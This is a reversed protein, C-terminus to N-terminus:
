RDGGPSTTLYMEFDSAPATRCSEYRDLTIRAADVENFDSLVLDRAAAALRQRLVANQKLEAIAVSLTVADGAPVLLGTARHRIAEPVANVRSAICAKGLAMAELLAGPLGESFSPHVFLDALRLLALLDLRSPGIESPRVIRVTQELGKERIIREVEPRQNGDGIWVFFLERHSSHLIRAAELLTACGKRPVLQGLSFVLFGGQPLGFRRCMGQRDVDLALAEAIEAGDVGTRAVAIRSLLRAPVYPKLSRQMDRNSVILHFGPTSCLIRFKLKWALRRLPSLHPIAIHLTVFTHTRLSMYLLLGFWNWPGMDAHLLTRDLPEGNLRRAIVMACRADRLRRMMKRPLSSSPVSDAHADFFELQIGLREFYHIIKPESARPILAKIHYRRRAAKM